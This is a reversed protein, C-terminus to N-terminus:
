HIERKLIIVLGTTVNSYRNLGSSTVIEWSEQGLANLKESLEQYDINRWFFGRSPVDLVKYEFKKM